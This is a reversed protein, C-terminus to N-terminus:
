ISYGAKKLKIAKVLFFVSMSMGGTIYLGNMIVAYLFGNRNSEQTYVIETEHYYPQILRMEGKAKEKSLLFFLGISLVLGLIGM